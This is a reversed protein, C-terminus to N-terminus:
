FYNWTLFVKYLKYIFNIQQSWCWVTNLIPRKPNERERETLDTCFHKCKYTICIGLTDGIQVHKRSVFRVLSQNKEKFFISSVTSHLPMFFHTNIHELILKNPNSRKSILLLVDLGSFHYKLLPWIYGIILKISKSPNNQRM